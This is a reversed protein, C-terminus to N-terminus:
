LVLELQFIDLFRGQAEDGLSNVDVNLVTSSASYVSGLSVSTNYPNANYTESPSLVNGTKHDSQALRLTCVNVGSQDFIDITEGKEFIGNVM